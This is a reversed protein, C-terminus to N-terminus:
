RAKPRRPRAESGDGPSSRADLFEQIDELRYRIRTGVRVFPLRYRKVCRWVTLTDPAVGLLAATEQTTLLVPRAENTSTMEHEEM